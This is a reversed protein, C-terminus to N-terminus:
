PIGTFGPTGLAADMEKVLAKELSLMVRWAADTRDHDLGKLHVLGHVILKQLERAFPVRHARAQALCVPTCILIDGLAYLTRGRIVCESSGPSAPFSLVDTSKEKGRYASNTERMEDEGCFRLNVSSPFDCLVGLAFEVREVLERKVLGVRLSVGSRPDRATPCANQVNVRFPIARARSSSTSKV